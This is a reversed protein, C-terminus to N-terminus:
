SDRIACPRALTLDPGRYRASGRELRRSSQVRNLYGYIYLKLVVSPHYPRGTEAPEVGDFGLGALDLTDVFADTVRVPNNEDVWDDLCEPFLTSQGRDTAEVFRGM